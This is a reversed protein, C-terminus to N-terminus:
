TKNVEPPARRLFFIHHDSWNKGLGLHMFTLVDINSFKPHYLVDTPVINFNGAYFELETDFEKCV